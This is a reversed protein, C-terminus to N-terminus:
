ERLWVWIEDIRSIESTMKSQSDETEVKQPQFPLHAEVGVVHTPSRM